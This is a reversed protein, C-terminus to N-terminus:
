DEIGPFGEPLDLQIRRAQVEVAKVYARVWPIRVVPPAGPIGDRRLLLQHQPGSVDLGAATGLEGLREDVVRCGQIDAEWFWGEPLSPLERRPLCLDVNRLTEADTMTDIGSLKVLWRDQHTRVAEGTAPHVDGQADRLLLRRGVIVEGPDVVPPVLVICSLEGRIGHPRVARAVALLEDAHAPQNM